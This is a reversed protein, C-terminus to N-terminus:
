DKKIAFTIEVRIREGPRLIAHGQVAAKFIARMGKDEFSWTGQESFDAFCEALDSPEIEMRVTGPHSTLTDGSISVIKGISRPGSGADYFLITPTKSM